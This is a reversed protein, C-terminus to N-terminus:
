CHYSFVNKFFGKYIPKSLLYIPAFLISDIRTQFSLSWFLLSLFLFRYDGNEIQKKLFYFAILLLTGQFIAISSNTNQYHLLNGCCLLIITQFVIGHGFKKCIQMVTICFLLSTLFISVLAKFPGFGIINGVVNLFAYYAPGKHDFHELYLRYDDSFFSSGTYYM